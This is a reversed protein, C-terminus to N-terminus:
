CRWLLIIRDARSVYGVGIFLDDWGPKRVILVRTALRAGVVLSSLIAFAIATGYVSSQPAHGSLAM